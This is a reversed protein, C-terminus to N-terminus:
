SCRTCCLEVGDNHFVVGDTRAALPELHEASRRAAILGHHRHEVLDVLNHRRRAHAAAFAERLKGRDVQEIDRVDDTLVDDGPTRRVESIPRM